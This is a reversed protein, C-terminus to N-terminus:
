HQSPHQRVHTTGAPMAPKLATVANEGDGDCAALAPISCHRYRALIQHTVLKSMM